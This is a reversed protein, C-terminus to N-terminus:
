PIGLYGTFCKQTHKLPGKYFLNANSNTSQTFCISEGNHTPMLWDVSSERLVCSLPLAVKGNQLSLCENRKGESMLAGLQHSESYEWLWVMLEGTEWAKPTNNGLNEQNEPELYCVTSDERSNAWFRTLWNMYYM